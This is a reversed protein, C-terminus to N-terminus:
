VIRSEKFLINVIQLCQFHEKRLANFMDCSVLDIIYIKICGLDFM